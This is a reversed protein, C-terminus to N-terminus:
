LFNFWSIPFRISRYFDRITVKPASPENILPMKAEEPTRNGKRSNCKKCAIVINKWSSDGGKSRPVVHDMTLESFKFKLGCYQCEYKYRYAVNRRNCSLHLKRNSIYSKLVIVSPFQATETIHHSHHEVVKARGSYALNFGKYADVIEIPRWSADLKLTYLKTEV